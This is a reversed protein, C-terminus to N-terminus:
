AIRNLDIEFGAAKLEKALMLQWGNSNDMSQYVLGLVDSPVEIDGKMLVFVKDRGLRGTFYGLELVVNQRPRHRRENDLGVPYGYDDPTMLIVAFGARGAFEEFKEIVTMGRNIQEQLIVPKVGLQELFRAVSHKAGEDHGHVLFVSNKSPLEPALPASEYRTATLIGETGIDSRWRGSLKGDSEIRCVVQVTGLRVNASFQRSPIMQISLPEAVVGAFVYEYQGMAPEAFKATGSVKEGEQRMDITFGGQNTGSITGTWYGAYNPISM